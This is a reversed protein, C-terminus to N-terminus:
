TFIWRVTCYSERFLRMLTRGLRSLAKPLYQPALLKYIRHSGLIDSSDAKALRWLVAKHYRGETFTDFAKLMLRDTRRPEVSHAGHHSATWSGPTDRRYEAMCRSLYLMGGRASGQLHLAMDNFCVERMPSIQLYTERRCLLSATAVHLGKVVEETPIIGDRLRPAMYGRTRGNRTKRACHACIDVEPCADMAEVQRQLKSPDTWRDDGECLAVYRGRILPFLFAPIINVGQSHQNRTQFVPRIIDPYKQAYESLIDATGDTSADDHVLVEFPFRTKQGLFGELASRIFPAHNYTLCIVTVAPKDM